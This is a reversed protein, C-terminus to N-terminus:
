LLKNKYKGSKIVPSQDSIEDIIQQALLGAGANGFSLSPRQTVISKRRFNGSDDFMLMAASQLTLWKSRLRRGTM